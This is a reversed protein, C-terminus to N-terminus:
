CRCRARSCPRRRRGQRHAHPDPELLGRRATERLVDFGDGDPLMVDLLIADYSNESAMWIGQEASPVTDVAYGAESLGRQLVTSLKAEDEVMLLRM